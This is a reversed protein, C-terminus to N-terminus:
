EMFLLLPDSVATSDAPTPTVVEEPNHLEELRIDERKPFAKPYDSIFSNMLIVAEEMTLCDGVSVKFYPSEYVLYANISPYKARFEEVVTNATDGAYQGNDFFIVVRYGSVKAARAAAEVASVASATADDEEVYVFAGSDTRESLRQRMQEVSQASATISMLVLSAIIPLLTLVSRM